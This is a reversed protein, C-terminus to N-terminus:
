SRASRATKSPKHARQEGYRVLTKDLIESIQRCLKPGTVQASQYGEDNLRTRIETVTRYLGSRALQFARELSSFNPDM